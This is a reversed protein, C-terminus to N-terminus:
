KAEKKITVGKSEAIQKFQPPTLKASVKELKGTELVPLGFPLKVVTHSISKNLRITYNATKVTKEPEARKPKVEEVKKVEEM